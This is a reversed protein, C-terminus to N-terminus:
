QLTQGEKQDNYHRRRKQSQITQGEKQENYHRDKKKTM